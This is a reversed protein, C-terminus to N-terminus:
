QVPGQLDSSTRETAPPTATTISQRVQIDEIDFSMISSMINSFQRAGVHLQQLHTLCDHM